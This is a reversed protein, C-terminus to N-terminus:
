FPAPQGQAPQNISTAGDAQISKLKLDNYYRGNYERGNLFFEVVVSQGVRFNNLRQTDDKVATISVYQPYQGGTNIVVTQVPVGNAGRLEAPNLQQIQGKVQYM